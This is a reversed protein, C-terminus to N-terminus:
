VTVVCVELQRVARGDPSPLSKSLPAPGHSGVRSTLSRVGSCHKMSLRRFWPDPWVRNDLLSEEVKTSRLFPFRLELPRPGERPRNDNLYKLCKDIFYQVVSLSQRPRDVYSSLTVMFLEALLPLRTAHLLSVM